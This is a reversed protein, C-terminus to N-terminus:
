YLKYVFVPHREPGVAKNGFMKPKVARRNAPDDGPRTKTQREVSYELYEKGNLDTKLEIDGWQLDQQEKGGRLGLHLCNNFWLINVLAEPSHIGMVNSIFLATIEDDTLPAAEQPRNGKGLRKLQKQKSKLVARTNAFNQDTIVSESYRFKKLYSDVSAIFGRLTTREYEDGSKKRVSVLFKSLYRDLDAPPIEQMDRTEEENALFLEVLAIDNGNKRQIRIQKQTWLVNFTTRM